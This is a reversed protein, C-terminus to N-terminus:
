SSSTPEQGNLSDELWSRYEDSVRDIELAVIEPVEYTHNATIFDRLGEWKETLTKILLLFETEKQVEGDWIYVSTMPPLVQVCAAFRAEVILEALAEAAEHAPCTTMVVLM